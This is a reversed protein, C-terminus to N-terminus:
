MLQKIMPMLTIHHVTNILELYAYILSTVGHVLIIYFVGCPFGPLLYLLLRWSGTPLNPLQLCKVSRSGRGREPIEADSGSLVVWFWGGNADSCRQVRLRRCQTHNQQRIQRAARWWRGFEIKVRKPDHVAGRRDLPMSACIPCLDVGGAPARIHLM